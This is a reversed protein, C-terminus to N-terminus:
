GITLLCEAGTIGRFSQGKVVLGHFGGVTAEMDISARKTEFDSVLSSIGDAGDGPSGV